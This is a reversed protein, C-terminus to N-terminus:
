STEASARKAAAEDARPLTVRFVAGQGKGESRGHVSGGHRGVTEYVLSLGLGTGEGERRTTFFPEFMREQDHPDIGEGTDRVEVFVRSGADGARVRVSGGGETAQLANFLLNLLSEQLADSDGLVPLAEPPVDCAIPNEKARPDLQALSVADRVVDRLDLYHMVTPKRRSFDLLRRVVKKLRYAESEIAELYDPFDEFAPLSRLEEEQARDRLGEAAGAIVTLPNAVEHAVGAALRGIAALRRERELDRERRRLEETRKRVEEELHEYYDRLQRAMDNFANGLARLEDGPPVPVTTDLRGEGIQRAARVLRVIPRATARAFIVAALFTGLLSLTTVGLTVLTNLFDANDVVRKIALHAEHGIPGTVGGQRLEAVRAFREKAASLESWAGPAEEEETSTAQLAIAYARGAERYALVSREVAAIADRSEASGMLRRLSRCLHLARTTPATVDDLGSERSLEEPDPIAALEAELRGVVDDAQTYIQLKDVDRGVAQLSYAAALGGAMPFLGVALFM